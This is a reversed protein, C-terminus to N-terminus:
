GLQFGVTTRVEGRCFLSLLGCSFFILVSGFPSATFASLALVGTFVFFCVVDVRGRRGCVCVCM